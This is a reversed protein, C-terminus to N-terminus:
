RIPADLSGPRHLNAHCEACLTVLNSDADSGQRGRFLLHHVHLNISGGCVQCKWGDRKLVEHRLREYEEQSLRIRGTKGIKM